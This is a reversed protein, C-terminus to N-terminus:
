EAPSGAGKAGMRIRARLQEQVMDYSDQCCDQLRRIKATSSAQPAGKSWDDPVLCLNARAIHFAGQVAALFFEGAVLLDSLLHRKCHKGAESILAQGQCSEEMIKVPCDILRELAAAITEETGEARAEAFNVYAKGDDHLLRELINEAVEAQELLDEWSSTLESALDPRLLELRIIKKLLALGLCASYAAAAGGGPNPEPNSLAALFPEDM